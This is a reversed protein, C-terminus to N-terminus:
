TLPPGYQHVLRLEPLHTGDTMWVGLRERAAREAVVLALMLAQLSSVGCVQQSFVVQDDGQTITVLCRWDTSDVCVVDHTPAHVRVTATTSHDLDHVLTEAILAM